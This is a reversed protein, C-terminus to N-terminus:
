SKDTMAQVSFTKKFVLALWYVKMTVVLGVLMAPWSLGAVWRPAAFLMAVTLALKVAEWLFFAVAAAGANASAVPNTLGRAFLAAPVVVALAGWAVSWAVPARGTVFGALAAAVAGVLVQGAIVRWASLPPNKERLARAQEATLPM